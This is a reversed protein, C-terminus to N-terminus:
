LYIKPNGVFSGVCSAISSTCSRVSRFPFIPASSAPLGLPSLQFSANRYAKWEMGSCMYISTRAYDAEELSWADFEVFALEDDAGEDGDGGVEALGEVRGGGVQDRRQSRQVVISFDKLALFHWPFGAVAGSGEGEVDGSLVEVPRGAQVDRYFGGM